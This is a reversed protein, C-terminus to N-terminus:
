RPAVFSAERGHNPLNARRGGCPVLPITGTGSRGSTGERRHCGRPRPNSRVNRHCQQTPWAPPGPTRRYPRMRPASARKEPDLLAARDNARQHDLRQLASPYSLHRSSLLRALTNEPLLPPSTDSRRVACRSGSPPRRWTKSFEDPTALTRTIYLGAFLHTLCFTTLQQNPSCTFACM